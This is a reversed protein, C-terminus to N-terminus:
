RCPQPAAETPARLALLAPRNRRSLWRQALALAFLGLATIAITGPEPTASVVPDAQSHLPPDTLSTFTLSPFTSLGRLSSPSQVKVTLYNLSPFGNTSMDLSGSLTLSLIGYQNVAQQTITGYTPIIQFDAPYGYWIVNLSYASVPEDFYWVYNSYGPGVDAPQLTYTVGDITGSNLPGAILSCATVVALLISKM